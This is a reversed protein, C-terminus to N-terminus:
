REGLANLRTGRIDTAELEHDASELEHIGVRLEIVRAVLALPKYRLHFPARTALRLGVGKILPKDLRKFISHRWRGTGRNANVAEHHEEGIRFIDPLNNEERCQARTGLIFITSSVM